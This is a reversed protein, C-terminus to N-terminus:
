FTRKKMKRILEENQESFGWGKEFYDKDYIEKLIDDSPQPYIRELGCSNCRWFKLNFKEMFFKMEKGCVYCEM